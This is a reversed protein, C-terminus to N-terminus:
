QKVGNGRIRAILARANLFTANREVIHRSWSMTTLMECLSDLAELLENRERTLAEIKVIDV